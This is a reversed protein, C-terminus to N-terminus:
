SPDLRITGEFGSIKGKNSRSSVRTPQTREGGKRKPSAAVGARREPGAIKRKKTPQPSEASGAEASRQRRGRDLQPQGRQATRVLGYSCILCSFLLLSVSENQATNKEENREQAKLKKQLARNEERLDAVQHQLQAIVREPQQKGELTQWEREREEARFQKQRQLTSPRNTVVAVRLPQSGSGSATLEPLSRLSAIDAAGQLLFLSGSDSDSAARAATVATAIAPSHLHAATLLGPLVAGIPDVGLTLTRLHENVITTKANGIYKQAKRITERLESTEKEDLSRMPATGLSASPVGRLLQVPVSSDDVGSWQSRSHARIWLTPLAESNTTNRQFLFGLADRTGGLPALNSYQPVGCDSFFKRWDSVSDAAVVRPRLHRYASQFLLVLDEFCAVTKSAAAKQIVSFVADIRHHAHGPLLFFVEVVDFQRTLVLWQAFALFFKNKNEGGANDASLLLKRLATGQQQQKHHQIAAHLFSIVSNSGKQVAQTHTLLLLEDHPAHILVGACCVKLGCSRAM